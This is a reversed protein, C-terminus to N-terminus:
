SVYSCHCYRCGIILSKGAVELPMKDFANRGCRYCNGNANGFCPSKTRIRLQRQAEIKEERTAEKTGSM